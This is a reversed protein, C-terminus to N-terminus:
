RRRRSCRDDAAHAAQTEHDRPPQGGVARSQNDQVPTRVGAIINTRRDRVHGGGAGPDLDDGAVDGVGVRGLAQYLRDFVGSEPQGTDQM